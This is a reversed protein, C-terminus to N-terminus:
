PRKTFNIIVFSDAGAGYLDSCTDKNTQELVQTWLKFKANLLLAEVGNEKMSRAATLANAVMAIEASDHINLENRTFKQQDPSKALSRAFAKVLKINDQNTEELSRIVGDIAFLQKDNVASMANFSPHIYSGM